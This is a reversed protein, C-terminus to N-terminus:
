AAEQIKQHPALAEWCRELDALFAALASEFAPLYEPDRDIRVHVHPLAPSYSLIDWWERGTLYLYGQMQGRYTAALSAPDLMYGIHTHLAPCKFDVGGGEGILGDPSGGVKRDDRMVFGVSEVEVDFQMEYFARAEAEMDRGRQTWSGEGGGGWDIAYGLLREALLQNRYKAASASPKLTKPTIINDFMSATPIGLRADMWETSGQEVDLRIM